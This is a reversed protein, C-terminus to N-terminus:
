ECVSQGEGAPEKELAVLLAVGDFRCLAVYMSSTHMTTGVRSRWEVM